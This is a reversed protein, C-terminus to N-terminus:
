FIQLKVLEFYTVPNCSSLSFRCLVSYFVQLSSNSMPGPLIPLATSNLEANPRHTKFFGQEVWGFEKSNSCLYFVFQQYTLLPNDVKYIQGVGCSFAPNIRV